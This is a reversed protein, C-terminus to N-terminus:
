KSSCQNWFGQDNIICRDYRNTDYSYFMYTNCNQPLIQGATAEILMWGREPDWAEVWEHLFGRKKFDGEIMPTVQVESYPYASFLIACKRTSTLCGGVTRTPIGQARLLATVLRSMSVCDGTGMELVTSAREDYCYNISIKSNYSVTDYVYRATKQIANFPSSSGEKLEQAIKYVKPNRYDFDYTEILYEELNNNSIDESIDWEGEITSIPTVTQKTGFLLIFLAVAGLAVVIQAKSDKM